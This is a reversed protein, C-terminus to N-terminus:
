KYANQKILLNYIFKKQRHSCVHKDTFFFPHVYLNGANLNHSEAIYLSNMSCAISFCQLLHLQTLYIHKRKMETGM